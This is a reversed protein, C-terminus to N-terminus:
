VSATGLTKSPAERFRLKYDRSFQSLNTYGVSIATQTVTTAGRGRGSVLSARALDLRVAKLYGMPTTARFRKFGQYISRTSVGGAAILDDSGIQRRAHERIYNEVRRVYYPAAASIPDSAFAWGYNNPVTNLFLLSLTREALRGVQGDFSPRPRNLDHCITVIYHWLTSIRQLDLVQLNGFNLPEGINVGTENAILREMRSRSLQVMLLQTSGRWRKHSRAIGELLVAQAPAAEVKAQGQQLQVNGRMLVHLLVLDSNQMMEIEYGSASDVSVLNFLSDGLQASRIEYKRFERASRLSLDFLGRSSRDIYQRAAYYDATSFQKVNSLLSQDLSFDATRGAPHAATDISATM